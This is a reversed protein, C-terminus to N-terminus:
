GCIPVSLRLKKKSKNSYGTEKRNKHALYLDNVVRECWVFLQVKRQSIFGIRCSKRDSQCFCGAPLGPALWIESQREEREGMRDAQALDGVKGIFLPCRKAHQSGANLTYLEIGPQADSM